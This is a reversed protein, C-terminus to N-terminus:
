PPAQDAPPVLQEKVYRAVSWREDASLEGKFPPMVDRGNTVIAYLEDVSRGQVQSVQLSAPREKLYGAVPGNGLGAVGHCHACNIQFLRLGDDPRVQERTRASLLMRSDRPVSGPPSHLRPAEQAQYSSQEEMDRSCAAPGSVLLCGAWWGILMWRPTISDQLGVM